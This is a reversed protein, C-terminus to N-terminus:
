QTNLGNAQDFQLTMRDQINYLLYTLTCQIQLGTDYPTIVINGARVRPESNFIQNVNELILHKVQDTLPEFLLDWIITGYTPNMLREGQRVHFHNMLDQKILEFDYLAFNQTANSITSFGRYRQVTRQTPAPRKAVPTTTYLSAM